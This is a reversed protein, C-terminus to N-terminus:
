RRGKPSATTALQLKKRKRAPQDIVQSRQAVALTKPRTEAASEGHPQRLSQRGARLALSPKADAAVVESTHFMTAADSLRPLKALLPHVMEEAGFLLYRVGPHRQLAIAAGKLVIAPAGDGGMADLAITIGDSM